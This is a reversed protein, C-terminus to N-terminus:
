KFEIKKVMNLVKKSVLYSGAFVIVGPLGVIPIAAAGALVGATEPSELLRVIKSINREINKTFPNIEMVKRGEKYIKVLKDQESSIIAIADHNDSVGKAAAHRTGYGKVTVSDLIRAGYARIRGNPDIIVAGDIRALHNLVEKMGKDFINFKRKSFIDPFHCVYDRGESLKGIVILCGDGGRAVHIVIDLVAEEVPNSIINKKKRNQTSVDKKRKVVDTKYLKPRGTKTKSKNTAHEGIRHKTSSLWVQKKKSSLM